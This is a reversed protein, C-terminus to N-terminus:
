VYEWNINQSDLDTIHAIFDNKNTFTRVLLVSNDMDIDTPQWYQIKIENKSYIEVMKCGKNLLHTKM